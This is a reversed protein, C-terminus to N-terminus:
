LSYYKLGWIDLPSCSFIVTYCVSMNESKQKMDYTMYLKMDFYLSVLINLRAM